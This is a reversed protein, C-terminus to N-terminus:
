ADKCHITTDVLVSGTREQNLANSHITEVTNLNNQIEELLSPSVGQAKLSSISSNHTKNKMRRIMKPYRMKKEFM